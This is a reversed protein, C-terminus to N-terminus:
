NIWRTLDKRKFLHTFIILALILIILDFGLYTLFDQKNAGWVFQEPYSLPNWIQKIRLGFFNFKENILIAMLFILPLEDSKLLLLFFALIALYISYTLFCLSAFALSEFIGGEAFSQGLIFHWCFTISSLIFILNLALYTLASGLQILVFKVRSLGKTLILKALADEKQKLCIYYLQALILFPLITSSLLYASLQNYSIGDLEGTFSNKVTIQELFLVLLWESLFFLYLLPRRSHTKLITKFYNM